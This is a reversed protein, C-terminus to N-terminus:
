PGPTSASSAPSNTASSSLAQSIAADVDITDIRQDVASVAAKVLASQKDIAKAQDARGLKRFFDALESWFADHAATIAEGGLAAGFDVDTVGATDAQPKILAYIVDCLLVIDSELRTLLPPDGAMLDALVVGPLLGQVRKIADITISLTWTHGASDTFTKM